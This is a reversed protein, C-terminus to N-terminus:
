RCGTSVSTPVGRSSRGRRDYNVVTYRYVTCRRAAADRFSTGRGRYVVVSRGVGRTRLVVVRASDPPRRWTLTMASATTRVALGLVDHAAGLRPALRHGTRRKGSVPNPPRLPLMPAAPRGEDGARAEHGAHRLGIGNGGIVGGAVAGLAFALAAFAVLKWAAGRAAPSHWSLMPAPRPPLPPAARRARAADEYLPRDLLLTRAREALVPDVLVLEPSIPGLEDAGRAPAEDAVIRM